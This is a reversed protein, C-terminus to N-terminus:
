PDAKVEKLFIGIKRLANELKAATVDAELALSDAFFEGTMYVVVEDDKKVAESATIGYVSDVDASTVKKVTGDEDLKVPAHAPIAEGAKKVTKAIPYPGAEFYEPDYRYTKVELDMSM